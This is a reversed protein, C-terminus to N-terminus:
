ARGGEAVAPRGVTANTRWEHPLRCVGWDAKSNTISFPAEGERVDLLILPRRNDTTAVNFHYTGGLLWLAPFHLEIFFERDSLGVPARGDIETSGCHCVLGDSRVIGVAVGPEIKCGPARELWIRVAAAEGTELHELPRGAGDVAEVRRIRVLADTNMADARGTIAVIRSARSRDAYADCVEAAPGAAEVKGHELWIAQRCLKVQYLNHSCYILTGGRELFRTIREACKAQFRQDGVALAEDIVLVDPESATAIAFALRLFMGSSYTRVPQDIFEGLESFDVIQPELRAIEPRALGQAAGALYINERGSFEGHFGAGLELISSVRGSVSLAGSTPETAGALMALLTTKGAGNDGVIGLAGGREVEFSVDRVASFATHRSTGGLWELARDVPRAYRRYEKCLERAAVAIM